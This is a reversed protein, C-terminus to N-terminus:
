AVVEYRGAAAFSGPGSAALLITFGELDSAWRDFLDTATDKM